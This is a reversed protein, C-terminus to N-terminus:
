RNRPRTCGYVVAATTVAAISVPVAYQNLLVQPCETIAGKCIEYLANGMENEFCQSIGQLACGLREMLISPCQEMATQCALEAMKEGFGELM